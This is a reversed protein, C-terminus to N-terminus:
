APIVALAATSPDEVSRTIETVRVWHDLVAGTLLPGTVHIIDGPGIEEIPAAPSDVVVLDGIEGATTRRTLADRAARDAASKSRISKDAMVAVRRLRSPESPIHSTIAERGEGAGVLLVDSAYEDEDFGLSPLVSLNMTTDFRMETRRVGVRPYGLELRHRINEGDWFTHELYDFPTDAALDDVTKALDQTDVPNLRFPGTQFSVDEGESTEFEVDREEEGVRVPSTTADVTLHLDGGPEGQVHAWVKRVIDLPDVDILDERPALWPMGGAYGTVGTCGVRISRDQHEVTTVIGGGHFTGSDEVWLASGWELVPLGYGEPLSGDLGGPGSLVRTTDTGTLPVAWDLIRGSPLEQLLVRASM